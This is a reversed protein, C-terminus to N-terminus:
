QRRLSSKPKNLRTKRSFVSRDEISLYEKFILGSEYYVLVTRIYICVNELVHFFIINNDFAVYTHLANKKKKSKTEIKKPPSVLM